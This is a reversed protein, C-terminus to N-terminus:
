KEEKDINVSFMIVEFCGMSCLKFNMSKDNYHNEYESYDTLLLEKAKIFTPAKVQVYYEKMDAGTKPHRFGSKFTFYYNNM